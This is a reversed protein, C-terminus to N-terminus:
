NLCNYSINQLSWDSTNGRSIRTIKTTYFSNHRKGRYDEITAYLKESTHIRTNAFYIRMNLNACAQQKGKVEGSVILDNGKKFWYIRTQYGDKSITKEEGYTTAPLFFIFFLFISAPINKM